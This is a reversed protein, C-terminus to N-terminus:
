SSLAKADIWFNDGILMVIFSITVVSLEVSPFYAFSITRLKTAGFHFQCCEPKSPFKRLTKNLGYKSQSIFLLSRELRLQNIYESQLMKAFVYQAVSCVFVFLQLARGRMSGHIVEHGYISFLM